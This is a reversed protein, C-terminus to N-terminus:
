WLTHGWMDCMYFVHKRLQYELTIELIQDKNLGEKSMILAISLEVSRHKTTMQNTGSQNVLAWFDLTFYSNKYLSFTIYKQFNKM